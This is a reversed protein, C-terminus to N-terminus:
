PIPGEGQAKELSAHPFSCGERNPHRSSCTCPVGAGGSRPPRRDTRGAKRSARLFSPASVRLCDHRAGGGWGWGGLRQLRQQARPPRSM